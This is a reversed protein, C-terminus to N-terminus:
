WILMYMPGFQPVCILAVAVKVTTEQEDYAIFVPITVMTWFEIAVALPVSYITWLRM